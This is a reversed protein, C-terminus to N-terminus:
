SHPIVQFLKVTKPLDISDWDLGWLRGDKCATNGCHYRYLGKPLFSNMPQGCTPCCLTLFTNFVKAVTDKPM